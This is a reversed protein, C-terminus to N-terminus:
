SPTKVNERIQSLTLEKVLSGDLFVPEMCGSREEAKTCRDKLIYAGEENKYVQLLGRASKKTGDDTIPDKFIERHDGNGEIYTAKMAIGFTDRTNYQYTYSGIGAVWNTSAFGNAELRACIDEARALTISDGYICGVKPNLVKYGRENITGGFIDWLLAVVGFYAPNNHDVNPNGCIIDAPDGSDPRFVVKGDRAIIDEKLVVTYKTIVDWLNWTDSVISVIGSPYVKTILSKFTLIENEKTGACMVSHETAAVSGGILENKIDAGYYQQLFKIAPITDTGTFSLLHGAGSICASELSSMGRMSFDHGQWQSFSTDGTTKIAWNDFIRKYQDAITASTCGQWISTSLITELFNPVWYFEDHTNSITLVPVQMHVRSGEPLAKILIPLFGLKHLARIHSESIAGVGLGHNVIEMYSSIVEDEPVDFFNRNFNEILYEKIFYQLGFFIMEDVGEIRSKRPTLNAYVKTTGSPYQKYHGTKYFDALLLPNINLNM